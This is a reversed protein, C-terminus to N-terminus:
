RIGSHFGSQHRQMNVKAVFDAFRNVEFVNDFTNYTEMKETAIGLGIAEFNRRQRVPRDLNKEVRDVFDAMTTLQVLSGPLGCAAVITSVTQPSTAKAGDSIWLARKTSIGKLDATATGRSGGSIFYADGVVMGGILGALIRAKFGLESSVKTVFISLLTHRM